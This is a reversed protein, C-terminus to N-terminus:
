CQLLHNFGKYTHQLKFVICCHSTQWKVVTLSSVCDNVKTMLSSILEWNFVVYNFKRFYLTKTQFCGSLVVFCGRLCTYCKEDKNFKGGQEKEKGGKDLAM